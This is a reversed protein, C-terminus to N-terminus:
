ATKGGKSAARVHQAAARGAAVVAPSHGHSALLAEELARLAKPGCDEALGQVALLQADVVKKRGFLKGPRQNLRECLWNFGASSGLKGLSRYFVTQEDRDVSAFRPRSMAELLLQAAPDAASVSSSLGLAAAIRVTRAPSNLAGGLTRV